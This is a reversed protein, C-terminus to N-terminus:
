GTLSNFYYKMFTSVMVMGSFLCIMLTTGFLGWLSASMESASKRMMWGTELLLATVTLILSAASMGTIFQSLVVDPNLHSLVAISWMLPMLSLFFGAFGARNGAQNHRTYFRVGLIAVVALLAFFSTDIKKQDAQEKRIHNLAGLVYRSVETEDMEYYGGQSTDYAFVRASVSEAPLSIARYQDKDASEIELYVIGTHYKLDYKDIEVLNRAYRNNEAKFKEQIAMLDQLAKRAQVDASTEFIQLCGTTFVLLILAFLVRSINFKMM